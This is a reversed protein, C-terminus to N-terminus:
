GRGGKCGIMVSRTLIIRAVLSQIRAGSTLCSRQDYEAAMGGGSDQVVLVLV